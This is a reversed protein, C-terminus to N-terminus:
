DYCEPMYEKLKDRLPKKTAWVTSWYAGLSKRSSLKERPNHDILTREIALGCNLNIIPDRINRKAYDIMTCEPLSSWNRADQYSLQYFGESVVRRGTVPDIGMGEEVRHANPNLSSEAFIMAKNFLVWFNIQNINLYNPCFDGINSNLMNLTVNQKIIKSYPWEGGIELTKQTNNQTEMCSILIFVISCLLLRM